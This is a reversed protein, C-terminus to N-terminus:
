DRNIREMLLKLNTQAYHDYGRRQIDELMYLMDVAHSILQAHQRQTGLPISKSNCDAIRVQGSVPHNAWVTNGQSGEKGGLFWNDLIQKM